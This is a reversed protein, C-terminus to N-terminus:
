VVTAITLSRCRNSTNGDLPFCSPRIMTLASTEPRQLFPLSAMRIRSEGLNQILMPTTHRETADAVPQRLEPIPAPGPQNLQIFGLGVEPAKAFVGGVFGDDMAVSGLGDIVVPAFAAVLM